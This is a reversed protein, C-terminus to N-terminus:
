LVPFFPRFCRYSRDNKGIELMGGQANAFACIVKFHEDGWSEKWETHKDETM